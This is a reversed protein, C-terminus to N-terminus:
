KIKVCFADWPQLQHTKLDAIEATNSIITAQYSLDCEFSQTQDSLNAVILYTADATKRLYAFVKDATELLEFDAEILWENEKRLKILKQYTYFISEPNDLAAQANIDQYNPNVPLWTKDATSFGANKSSDWQMPTRANDRGIMRISDLVKESTKGNELAEKAFNLSEIDDIEGLDKFPYNTMGIEEGQYIYPTGRM